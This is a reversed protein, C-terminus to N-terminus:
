NIEFDGIRKAGSGAYTGSQIIDKTVSTFARLHVNHTVTVKNTVTSRIDLVCNNGISSKDTVMVGPRLLCNQGLSSYHGLMSYPGMISHAGVTAGLAINCFGFVFSGNGIMPAPMEGLLTTPHIVTVLDAKAQDLQDIVQKRLTLDLTVSVIYQHDRDIVLQQPQVVTVVHTPRLQSLFEQTMTSQAFGVVCVPKQNGIIM